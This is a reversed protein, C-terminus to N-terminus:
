CHILLTQLWSFFFFAIEAQFGVDMLTFPDFLTDRLVTHLDAHGPLVLRALLPPSWKSTKDSLGCLLTM